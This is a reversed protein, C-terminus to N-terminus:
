VCRAQVQSVSTLPQCTMRLEAFRHRPQQRQRVQAQPVQHRVQIQMPQQSSVKLRNFRAPIHAIVHLSHGKQQCNHCKRNAAPNRNANQSSNQGDKAKGKGKGKKGKTDGKTGKGEKGKHGKGKGKGLRDIEMPTQQDQFSGGKGEALGYTAAVSAGWKSSSSDYRAVVSWLTDYTWSDEMIINIHQRLQGTLCRLLSALKQDDSMPASAITDYEGIAQELRLMQSQLGAKNDFPPWSHIMSILALARTRSSPKLDVSIQRYSEYGNSHSVTKLVRKLRGNLLSALLGYMIRSRHQEADTLTNMTVPTKSHERLRVFDHQYAEDLTSLFQEFEWSWSPWKILEDDRTKASFAAPPKLIKSLDRAALSKPSDPDAGSSSASQAQQALLQTLMQQNRELADLTALLRQEGSTM